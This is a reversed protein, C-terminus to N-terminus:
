FLHIQTYTYTEGDAGPKAILTIRPLIQNWQAGRTVSTERFGRYSIEIMGYQKRRDGRAPASYFALLPTIGRIHTNSGGTRGNQAIHTSHAWKASYTHM